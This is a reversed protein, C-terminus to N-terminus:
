RPPDRFVEKRHWDVFAPDPAWETSQPQRLARGAYDLLWRMAESRGNVEASILVQFGSGTPEMGIAGRDLAKHHLGCLALGNRVDDPGGAAHWKIHAAELGLLDDVLRIDFGCVACHRGYARLVEHRFKPDRARRPADRVERERLGVADRLDQHLSAPFHGDLLRQAAEQVLRGDSRLLAFLGEPFGASVGNDLLVKRGVRRGRLAQADVIDWLGDNGLYVFPYEPHHTARPPGFRRLLDRLPTEVSAYPRTRAGGRAVLGLALLLLLPKHPARQSGRRWVNLGDITSLFQEATSVPVDAPDHPEEEKM